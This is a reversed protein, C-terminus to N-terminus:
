QYPPAAVAELIIVKTQRFFYEKEIMEEPSLVDFSKNWCENIFPIWVGRYEGELAILSEKIEKMELSDEDDLESHTATKKAKVFGRDDRNVGRNRYGRLRYSIQRQRPIKSSLEIAKDRLGSLKSAMSGCFPDKDDGGSGGGPKKKTPEPGQFLSLTSRLLNHRSESGTMGGRGFWSKFGGKGSANVSTIVMAAAVLANVRM